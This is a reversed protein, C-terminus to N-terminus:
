TGSAGGDVFVVVGEREIQRRPRGALVSSEAKTLVVPRGGPRPASSRPGTTPSSGPPCGGDEGDRVVVAAEAVTVSALAAVRGKWSGPGVLLQVNLRDCHLAAERRGARGYRSPDRMALSWRGTRAWWRSGRRHSPPHAAPAVRLREYLLVECSPRESGPRGKTTGATPGMPCVPSMSASARCSGSAGGLGFLRGRCGRRGCQNRSTTMKRVLWVMVINPEISTCYATIHRVKGQDGLGADHHRESGQEAEQRLRDDRDEAPDPGVPEVALPQDDAGVRRDREGRQQEGHEEDGGPLVAGLRSREPEDVQRERDPEAPAPM